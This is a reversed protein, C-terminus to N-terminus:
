LLIGVVAAAILWPFKALLYSTLGGTGSVIRGFYAAARHM